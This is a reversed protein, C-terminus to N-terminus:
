RPTRRAGPPRLPAPLRRHGSPMGAPAVWAVLAGSRALYYRGPATPFPQQDDVATFGAADLMVAANAVAHFPTPSASVFDILGQATSDPDFALGSSAADSADSAVHTSM